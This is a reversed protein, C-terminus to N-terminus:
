PYFILFNMRNKDEMTFSNWLCLREFDSPKDDGDYGFAHHHPLWVLLLILDLLNHTFCGHWVLMIVNNHMVQDFPLIKTM